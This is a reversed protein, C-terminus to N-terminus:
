YTVRAVVAQIYIYIRMRKLFYYMMKLRKNVMENTIEYNAEVGKEDQSDCAGRKLRSSAFIGLMTTKIDFCAAPLDTTFVRIQVHLIM